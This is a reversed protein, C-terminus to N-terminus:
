LEGTWEHRMGCDVLMSADVDGIEEDEVVLVRVGRFVAGEGDSQQSRIADGIMRAYVFNPHKEHWGLAEFDFVEKYLKGVGQIADPSRRREREEVEHGGQSLLAKWLEGKKQLQSARQDRGGGAKICRPCRGVCNDVLYLVELGNQLVCALYITEEFVLETMAQSLMDAEVDDTITTDDTAMWSWTEAVDLAVRRAGRLAAAMEDSWMGTLSENIGGSGLAELLRAADSESSVGSAYAQFEGMLARASVRSAMSSDRFRLCIVDGRGNSIPVWRDPGPLYVANVDPCPRQLPKPISDKGLTSTYGGTISETVTSIATSKCPTKATVVRAADVCTERIRDVLTYVSPDVRYRAVGTSRALEADSTDVADLFVIDKYKAYRAQVEEPLDQASTSSAADGSTKKPNVFAQLSRAEGDRSTPFCVDFLHMSPGQYSAEWVKLQLEAPLLAFQPFSAPKRQLSTAM